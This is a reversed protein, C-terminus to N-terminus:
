VLCKLDEWVGLSAIAIIIGLTCILFVSPLLLDVASRLNSGMRVGSDVSKLRVGCLHLFAVSYILSSCLEPKQCFGAM